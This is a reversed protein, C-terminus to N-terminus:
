TGKKMGSAVSNILGTYKKMIRYGEYDTEREKVCVCVCVCRVENNPVM